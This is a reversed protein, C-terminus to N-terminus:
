FRQILYCQPVNSQTYARLYSFHGPIYPTTTKELSSTRGLISLHSPVFLSYLLKAIVRLASRSVYLDYEEDHKSIIILLDFESYLIFDEMQIQNM